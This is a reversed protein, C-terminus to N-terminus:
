KYYNVTPIIASVTIPVEYLYLQNDFSLAFFSGETKRWRFHIKINFLNYIGLWIQRLAILIFIIGLYYPQLSTFGLTLLLLIGIYYGVSRRPSKSIYEVCNNFSIRGYDWIHSEGISKFKYRLQLFLDRYSAPNFPWLFILIFSYLISYNNFSRRRRVYLHKTSVLIQIKAHGGLNKYTANILLFIFFLVLLILGLIVLFLQLQDNTLNNFYPTLDYFFWSVIEIIISIFFIGDATIRGNVRLTYEVYFCLALIVMARIYHWFSKFSEFFLAWLPFFLAIMTNDLYLSTKDMTNYIILAYIFGSLIILGTDVILFNFPSENSDCRVGLWGESIPTEDHEFLIQETERNIWKEDIHPLSTKIFFDSKTKEPSYILQNLEAKLLSSQTNSELSVSPLNALESNPVSNQEIIEKKAIESTRKQKSHFIKTFVDIQIFYIIIEWFAGWFYIALILYIFGTCDIRLNLTLIDMQFLVVMNGSDLVDFYLVLVAIINIFNMLLGDIYGDVILYVVIPVLVIVVSYFTYEQSFFIFRTNTLIIQIIQVYSGLYTLIAVTLEFIGIFILSALMITSGKSKDYYVLPMKIVKM